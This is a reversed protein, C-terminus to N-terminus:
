PTSSIQAKPPWFTGFTACILSISLAGTWGMKHYDLLSVNIYNIVFNLPLCTSFLLVFRYVKNRMNALTKSFFFAVGVGIVLRAVIVLVVSLM